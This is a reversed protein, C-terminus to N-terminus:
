RKEWPDGGLLNNCLEVASLLGDEHFGYRFWAGCYFTRNVGDKKNLEKLRGQSQVAELDFLPHEYELEKHCVDKEIGDTNLSVFYDKKDSVGQLSNMWYHTTAKGKKDTRYNWSAWCRRVEPMYQPVSHLKVANPEYKFKSLLEAELDTPEDLMRLSQPAHTALIVKDFKESERGKVDLWVGDDERRVSTVPSNTHIRDLFPETMRKVYSRSGGEVTRWPHQTKAGLFGHNHWFRLLTVAPFEMMKEQPTSWVASSMPILYCEMFDEGYGRAEVYEALTMHQWELEDLAAVAEKNFRNLQLLFRWFRLSFLNRRDGFLYKLSAGRWQTNTPRHNVSFSMSSPKTPVDLEDFLRTLNPYTVNNYVMFGTDIPIEKGDENITVTNSHGGIRDDAEFVTVDFKRHLFWACGLGSIGSGVIAIKEM